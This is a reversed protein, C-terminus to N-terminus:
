RGNAKGRLERCAACSELEQGEHASKVHGALATEWQSKTRLSLRTGDRSKHTGATHNLFLYSTMRQDISLVDEGSSREGASQGMGADSCSATLLNEVDKQYDGDDSTGSRM